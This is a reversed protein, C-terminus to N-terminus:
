WEVEIDYAMLHGGCDTHLMQRHGFTTPLDCSVLRRSVARGTGKVKCKDCQVLVARRTGKRAARESASRPLRTNLQSTTRPGLSM